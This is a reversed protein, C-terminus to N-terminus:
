LERSCTSLIECGSETILVDDELKMAGVGVLYVAPEIALTNGPQLEATETDLSPWEFSTALGFGHGIRHYLTTGTESLIKQATQHLHICPVGPKCLGIVAEHARRVTDWAHQQLASPSGIVFTRGVDSQYGQYSAGIDLMVTDGNELPRPRAKRAIVATDADTGGMVMPYFATDCGNRNFTYLIAAAIEMETVGPRVLSRAEEIALDTVRVAERLLGIELPSKVRRLLNFAGDVDVLEARLTGGLWAHMQWPLRSMGLVAIRRPKLGALKEQLFPLPDFHGHWDALGSVQAAENLEWHFNLVCTLEQAGTQIAWMDGLAPSFNTLYRFPAPHERSSYVLGIDCGAQQIIDWIKARRKHLEVHWDTPSQM